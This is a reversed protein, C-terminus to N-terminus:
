RGSQNHVRYQLLRVQDSNLAMSPKGKYVGPEYMIVRNQEEARCGSLLPVALVALLGIMLSFRRRVRYIM